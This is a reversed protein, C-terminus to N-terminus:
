LYLSLNRNVFKANNVYMNSFANYSSFFVEILLNISNVSLKNRNSCQKPDTIDQNLFFNTFNPLKTRHFLFIRISLFNKEPYRRIGSALFSIQL